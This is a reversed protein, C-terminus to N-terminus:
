VMNKPNTYKDFDSESLSTLELCSEKLSINKNYANLAVKSALDYGIIKTLPTVLMLSNNLLEKIRKLNAKIGFLCNKDFSKIADSLLQIADLTNHIIVPNYVNLQFHGQTCAFSVSSRLGIVHACVMSLAECQTPNIKGPMISSGPENAPLILEAIGSRPGSSLVRIDNAMKFLSSTLIEMSSMVEIFVDHSALAEYKNLASKFPLKTFNQLNKIFKKSFDKPANVGSGVATGGQALQFLKSLSQVIKKEAYDIQDHFALFENSLKIPTADQTHTRGIKIVKDFEKVKKKLTKKIKSIAPLLERKILLVTAIHMATPITDNSSQSKNIDDNPHLPKNSPLKSGLLLNAKNAIVENLNMNIQTGSGTQWVVLPFHDKLKQDIILDCVKAITDVHKKSLLKCNYNAMASSKKQLALAEIFVRQFHFKGVGIQFNQISRQTQAGWLKESEVKVEGLSDKEIRFKVM